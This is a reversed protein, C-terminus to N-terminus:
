AIKEKTPMDRELRTVHDALTECFAKAIASQPTHAPTLISVHNVIVPRFPRFVLRARGLSNHIYSDATIRDCIMLCLGNEVFHLGPLTTRLEFRRNFTCGQAAFAQVTQRYSSHESFLMALDAKDLDQPTLIARSALPHDAPLACLNDMAFDRQRISARPIPTEALGVDCQQSAIMDEILTSSRMMLSVNVHPKDKLFATLVSPLFTGSAAPHSAIRLTGEELRAVGALTRKTRELRGLIEECEELFFRAEPTPTLKGRERLFLAFGLEKELGAIMASVAPQTRSVSRGAQSISGTRMVERFTALQQLTLNM